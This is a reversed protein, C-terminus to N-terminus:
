KKTNISSRNKVLYDVGSIITLVVAVWLLVESVLFLPFEAPLVAFDKLILLLMVGVMATM